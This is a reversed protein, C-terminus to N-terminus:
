NFQELIKKTDIECKGVYGIFTEDKNSGHFDSGATVLLNFRKAIKEYFNCDTPSHLPCFAEIGDLGMNKLRNVFSIFRESDLNLTTPHALVAKGGASKIVKFAEETDLKAKEVYLVRGKGLYRDFAEPISKVVGERVLFKAIHPRGLEGRNESSIEMESVWRGVLESILAILKKNRERRFRKLNGMATILDPHKSDINLGLLHFTGMTFDLSIEVGPIKILDSDSNLFEYIGDITDHDTLAIAKLDNELAVKCIEEPSLTGDSFYSHIHLDIM